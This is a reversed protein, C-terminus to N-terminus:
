HLCIGLGGDGGAAPGSDTAWSAGGTEDVYQDNRRWLDLLMYTKNNGRILWILVDQINIGRKDAPAGSSILGTNASQDM